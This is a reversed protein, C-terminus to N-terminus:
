GSRPWRSAPSPRARARTAQPPCPAAPGAAAPASCNAPVTLHWSTRLAAPLGAAACGYPGTRTLRWTGGSRRFVGTAAGDQFAAALRGAVSNGAPSPVFTAIAWETGSAEGVHVSGARLSGVSAGPLHRAAAFAQTLQAASGAPPPTTAASAATVPGAGLAALATFVAFILGTVRWRRLRGQDVAM